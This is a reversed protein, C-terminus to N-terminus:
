SLSNLHPPPWLWGNAKEWSSACFNAFIVCLLVQNLSNKVVAIPNKLSFSCKQVYIQYKKVTIVFCARLSSLHAVRRHFKRVATFSACECFQLGCLRFFDFHFKHLQSQQLVQVCLGSCFTSVSFNLPTIDLFINWSVLAFQAFNDLIHLIQLIQWIHVITCLQAFNHLIQLITCFTCFIAFHAFNLM